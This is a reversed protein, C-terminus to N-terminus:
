CDKPNNGRDPPDPEPAIEPSVPSIVASPFVGNEIGGVIVLLALTTAVRNSKDDTWVLKCVNISSATEWDTAPITEGPIPDLIAKPNPVIGAAAVAEVTKYKGM